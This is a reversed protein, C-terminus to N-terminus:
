NRENRDPPRGLGTPRKSILKRQALRLRLYFTALLEAAKSLYTHAASQLKVMRKSILQNWSHHRSRISLSALIQYAAALIGSEAKAALPHLGAIFPASIEVTDVTKARVRHAMEHAPLGGANLIAIGVVDGFVESCQNEPFLARV